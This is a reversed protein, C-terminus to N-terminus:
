LQSQRDRAAQAHGRCCLQKDEPGMRRRTHEVSGFQPASGRVTGVHRGCYQSSGRRQCPPDVPLSRVCSEELVTRNDLIHHESVNVKQWSVVAAVNCMGTIIHVLGGGRVRPAAYVHM